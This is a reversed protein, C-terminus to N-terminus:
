SLEEPVNEFAKHTFTHRLSTITGPYFWLWCSQGPKVLVTLFPDVIGVPEGKSGVLYRGTARDRGVVNVPTGPALPFAAVVPELAVHTADRRAKGDILKGLQPVDQSM